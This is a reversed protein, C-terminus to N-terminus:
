KLLEMKKVATYSGAKLEYFYIGSSLKSANFLVSHVGAPMESNVLEGVKQGIINYVSLLLMLM